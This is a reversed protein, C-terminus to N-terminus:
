LGRSYIIRCKCNAMCERRGVAILSGLEVWGRKTERVCGSCHEAAGLINREIQYGALAHSEGRAKEFTTNGSRVYLRTRALVDGESAARGRGAEVQSAFENLRDLQYEIEGELSPEGADLGRFGGQGAAFMAVHMQKIEDGLVAQWQGISLEGDLMLRASTIAKPEARSLLIFLILTKIERDAIRKGKYIYSQTDAEWVADTLLERWALSAHRRWWDRARVLDQGTVRALLSIDSQSWHLGTGNSM